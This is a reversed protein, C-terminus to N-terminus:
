PGGDVELVGVAFQFSHELFDIVLLCGDQFAQPVADLIAFDDGESAGPRSQKVAQHSILGRHGPVTGQWRSRTCSRRGNIKAEVTWSRNALDQPAPGDRSDGGHHQLGRL